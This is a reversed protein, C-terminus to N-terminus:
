VYGYHERITRQYEEDPVVHPDVFRPASEVAEQDVGLTISGSDEESVAEVPVLHHKRELGLFESTLVDVFRLQRSDEDVYLNAVTGVISGRSDLVSKQRMEHQPPTPHEHWELRILAMLGGKRSSGASALVEMIVEDPSLPEPLARNVLTRPLHMRRLEDLRWEGFDM